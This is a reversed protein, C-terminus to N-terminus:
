HGDGRSAVADTCSRATYRNRRTSSCAPTHQAALTLVVSSQRTSTSCAAIRYILTRGWGNSRGWRNADASAACACSVHASQLSTDRFGLREEACHQVRREVAQLWRAARSHSRDGRYRVMSAAWGAHSHGAPLPPSTRDTELWACLAYYPAFGFVQSLRNHGCMGRALAAGLARQRQTSESAIPSSARPSHARRLATRLARSMRESPLAGHTATCRLNEKARASFTRHHTM